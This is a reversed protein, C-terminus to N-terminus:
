LNREFNDKFSTTFSRLNGHTNKKVKTHGHM